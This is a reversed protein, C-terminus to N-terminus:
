AMTISTQIQDKLETITYTYTGVKNFTLKNFTAKGNKNTVTEEYGPLSKNEQDKEIKFSFEGDVLVRGKM